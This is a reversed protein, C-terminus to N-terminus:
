AGGQRLLATGLAECYREEDFVFPGAEIPVTLTSDYDNEFAFDSWRISDSDRDIRAGIAGCGLGGCEPCVFVPVRGSPLTPPRLLLLADRVDVAFREDGWGLVGVLDYRGAEVLEFLSSGNVVFDLYWRETKSGGFAAGTIGPRHRWALGVTSRDLTRM